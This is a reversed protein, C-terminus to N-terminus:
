TKIIRIVEKQQLLSMRMWLAHEHRSGEPSEFFALAERYINLIAKKLERRNQARLMSFATSHLITRWCKAYVGDKTVVPIKTKFGVFTRGTKQKFLEGLGTAANCCFALLFTPGYDLHLENYFVSRATKYNPTGPQAGPGELSADEGHGCFILATHTTNPNIFHQVLLQDYTLPSQFKELITPAGLDPFNELLRNTYRTFRDHSPASLLIILNGGPLSSWPALNNPM